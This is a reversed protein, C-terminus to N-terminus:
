DLGLRVRGDTYPTYPGNEILYDVVVEAVDPGFDYADQAEVLMAYGDGGARLFSNSVVGYLRDPDLPAGGVTVDRIREGAPATIDVAFRMGSVQPFRGAGTEIQSVGNELAALLTAGDIRFTALTNQFPLVTLVDGMTVPGADISARLGGGNYLAIEVGQGKVRELLADAVLNGMQCEGTRCDARAGSIPAAAEAVVKNRIEDLPQAAEAVRAEIAADEPVSADILIPAGSASTVEGAADFSVVLEGLYRGYAGAQVIATGEVMTPYPGAASPDDNALYTNSHGGVIVDVGTTERAIRLDVDYGSHSLVIIKTVGEAELRAVEAQVAPVPDSFTINRGPKALTDNDEPTLGILGIRAGGHELITSAPVAGALAPEASTDANAMLVPFDVADIFRRLVEAGDDFEHNGVAMADYGLLGMMEAAFQGKYFTYFLSGQFWDGGDLLLPNTARGRAAEIATALRAVGGLCEGAANNEVSCTSGFRTIPEFRAHVDNTHLITLTFDAHAPGACLAALLALRPLM